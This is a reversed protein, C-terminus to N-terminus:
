VSLWESNERNFNTFESTILGLALTPVATKSIGARGKTQFAVLMPYLLVALKQIQDILTQFFFTSWDSIKSNRNVQNKTQCSTFRNQITVFMGFIRNRNLSFLLDEETELRNLQCSIPQNPLNCHRRWTQMRKKWNRMPWELRVFNKEWNLKSSDSESM